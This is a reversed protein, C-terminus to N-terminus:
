LPTKNRLHFKSTHIEARKLDLPSEFAWFLSKQKQLSVSFKQNLSAM